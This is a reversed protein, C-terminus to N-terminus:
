VGFGAEVMKDIEVGPGSHSEVYLGVFGFCAMVEGLPKQNDSSLLLLRRAPGIL